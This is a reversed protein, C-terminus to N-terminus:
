KRSAHIQNAHKGMGIFNGRFPCGKAQFYPDRNTVLGTLPLDVTVRTGGRRWSRPVNSPSPPSEAFLNVRKESDKLARMCGAPVVLFTTGARWEFRPRRGASSVKARTAPSGALPVLDPPWAFAPYRPQDALGLRYLVAARAVAVQRCATSLPMLEQRSRVISAQIGWPGPVAIGGASCSKLGLPLASRARCEALAALWQSRCQRRAGVSRVATDRAVGITSCM